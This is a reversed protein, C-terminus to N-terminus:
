SKFNKFRNIAIERRRSHEVIPTPYDKGLKIGAEKLRSESVEFPAQIEDASLGSLEPCYHRVFEGDPDFREGQRVPNFIRFYPAGDAGTSASWQWGGNNAAIDGDLLRNMFYREGVRWDTLLDKTLFMATIMRLRNHMWGTQDLQRMAADVIPFGTQGAKWREVWEPRNEWEIDDYKKIFSQESVHPFNFIIQHYFDRWALQAVFKEVSDPMQLQEYRNRCDWYLKRVSILGFRLYPSLKSNGGEAPFDRIKLYDELREHFFDEWRENASQESASWSNETIKQEMGLEEPEPITGSEVESNLAFDTVTEVPEAKEAMQWKRYYPTFIRYATGTTTLIEDREFFLQDKWSKVGIGAECLAEWAAADRSREYPEYCRNWHVEDVELQRALKVVEEVPSGCRVFLEGGQDRLKNRLSRVADMKFKFRDGSRFKWDAHSQDVIVAPYLAEAARSASWLGYNDTTRLDRRFWFMIKKM